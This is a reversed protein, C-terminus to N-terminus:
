LGAHRAVFKRTYERGSAHRYWRALLKQGATGLLPSILLAALALLRKAGRGFFLHTRLAKRRLFRAEVKTGPTTYITVIDLLERGVNHAAYIKRTVAAREESALPSDTLYYSSLVVDVPSWSADEDNARTGLVPSLVFPHDRAALLAVAVHPAYAATMLYGFRIYPMCLRRNFLYTSMFLLSNFDGPAEMLACVGTAKITTTYHQFRSSFKIFAADTNSVITDRLEALRQPDILDDDGCLLFWDTDIHEFCRLINAGGGINTRNRVITTTVGRADLTAQLNTDFKVPPESGNDVVLLHVWSPLQDSIAKLNVLLLATRNFSPIAITLRNRRPESSHLSQGTNL